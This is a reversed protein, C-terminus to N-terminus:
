CTKIITQAEKLNHAEFDCCDEKQMEQYRGEPRKILITRVTPFINKVERIQELRDDLFYVEGEKQKGPAPLIKKMEAAKSEDTVIVRPILKAIASNKIKKIQFEKEGYSLLWINEAGIAAVFDKVDDFVYRSMDAIYENVLKTIEVTNLNIESKMRALQKWPDFTKIARTDNPDNYYKDFIDGSIGQTLFMEKFDAKFQKTNFIVDDFDIFIKVSM